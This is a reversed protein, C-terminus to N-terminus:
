GCFECGQKAVPIAINCASCFRRPVAKVTRTKKIAARIGPTRAKTDSMHRAIENVQDPTATAFVFIAWSEVSAYRREVTEGDCGDAALLDRLARSDRMYANLWEDDCLTDVLIANRGAADQSAFEAGSDTLKWERAFGNGSDEIFGLVAAANAYYAGQRGTYGLAEAIAQNTNCGDAVADVVCVLAPLSNAQPAPIVTDTNM